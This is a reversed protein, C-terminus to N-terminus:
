FLKLNQNRPTMACIQILNKHIINVKVVFKTDALLVNYPINVNAPVAALIIVRLDLKQIKTAPFQLAAPSCLKHKLCPVVLLWGVLQIRTAKRNKIYHFYDCTPM